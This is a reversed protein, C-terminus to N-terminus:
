PLPASQGSPASLYHLLHAEDLLFTAVDKDPYVNLTREVDLGIEHRLANAVCRCERERLAIIKRAPELYLDFSTEGSLRQIDELDRKAGGKDFEGHFFLDAAVGAAKAVCKDEITSGKWSYVAQLIWQGQTGNSVVGVAIGLVRANLHHAATIHGAEHEASPLIASEVRDPPIILPMEKGNAQLRFRMPNM